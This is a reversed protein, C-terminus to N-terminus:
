SPKYAKEFAEDARKELDGGMDNVRIHSQRCNAFCRGLAQYKACMTQMKGTRHHRCKPLRAVNEKGEKFSTNFFDGHKKGDPTKWAPKPRPNKSFWEPSPDAPPDEEEKKDGANENDEDELVPHNLQPVIGYLRFSRFTAKVEDIMLYRLKRRAHRIPNSRHSLSKLERCFYQFLTDLYALFKAPFGTDKEAAERFKDGHDEILKLGARYGESAIGKYHTLEELFWIGVKLMDKAESMSSPLHYGNKALNDIDDESLKGVEGYAIKIDKKRQALGRSVKKFPSFMFLTFGGPQNEDLFGRALFHSVGSQSIIGPPKADGFMDTVTQWQTLPNKTSLLDQLVSSMSPNEDRYDRAALYRALFKQRAAYQGITSRELREQDMRLTSVRQYDRSDALYGRMEELLATLDTAGGSLQNPPPHTRGVGPDNRDRGKNRRRGTRHNTRRREKRKPSRSSSSSSSSPSSSSSSSSYSSSDSSNDSSDSSSRPSRRSKKRSRRGRSKHSSRSRSRKSKKRRRGEKPEKRSGVERSDGGRDENRGKERHHFENEGKTEGGVSFRVGGSGRSERVRADNRGTTAEGERYGSSEKAREDFRRAAREAVAALDPYEPTKLRARTGVFRNGTLWLFLLLSGVGEVEFSRVEESTDNLFSIVENFMTEPTLDGELPISFAATSPHIRVFAPYSNFKEAKVAGDGRMEIFEEFNSAELLQDASPVLDELNADPVSYPRVLSGFAVSRPPTFRRFDPIGSVDSLQEGVVCQHLLGITSNSGKSTAPALPFLLVVEAHEDALDNALLSSDQAYMTMRGNIDSPLGGSRENDQGISSYYDQWDEM